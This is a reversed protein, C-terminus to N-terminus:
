VDPEGGLDKMAQEFEPRGIPAGHWASQGEMFSVGKGKVTRALIVSPKGSVAKAQGITKCLDAIDHGDCRFVEFGFAGFKAPVDDMPMIEECRGDLQVGNLDVIAVLNDLKFKSASMCAEWVTGENIEGDGMVAYVTAPNKDLRLAMAMGVAASVGIGLPGTSLEVGPTTKACPHGQLHSGLQRLTDMDAEPFFGRKALIMYLMPAAHGKTLIIRDREPWKPNAQDVKAMEFYLASLIECASLSGGPHGTQLKHLLRILDIRM